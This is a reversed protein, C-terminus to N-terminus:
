PTVEHLASRGSNWADLHDVAALGDIFLCAAAGFVIDRLLEPETEALGGALDRGAIQEHVADAAVHEDFYHTADEGYGHRRLGDGYLRNPISSTMEFAALHGTIAGRLRRNLGCMSMFTSACLTIGPAHDVYAGYSDDLGIARMSKRFLESHMSGLHGGGYEDAQIEVAAAKARGTLRPISWTHPDAEKLQYVSKLMLMERLQELTAHRAAYRSLSPGQDAATLAFLAAAVDPAHPAPLSPLPVRDRLEQELAGELLRRLAVVGPQWERDDDVGDVGRYHLEQLVFLALQLDDDRLLDGTAVAEDIARSTLGHVPSDPADAAGTRLADLVAASVPGRPQPAPLRLTAAITSQSM